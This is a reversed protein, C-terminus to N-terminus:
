RIQSCEVNIITVAGNFVQSLFQLLRIPLKPIGSLHTM